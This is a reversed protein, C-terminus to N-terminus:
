AGLDAGITAAARLALAATTLVPNATSGTPFVSSGVIFLNRHDHSRGEPDVVSKHIDKGMITTGMIHGSGSDSQPDGQLTYDRAGLREFIMAHLRVAALLAGRVYDDITYEIKPRPIGFRDTVTDSPVVRNEWRPLQEVASNLVIQRSIHDALRTRLAEGFLHQTGVLDLVSGRSTLNTGRPAGTPWTWGDNRITTRFAAREARFAGDRLTEISSTSPPGRFPYLAKEALAYSMKIPHDMLYRGVAGSSNAVGAPRQGRSLLLLKPIEIANAALVVVRGSVVEESGDWRKYRVREVRTGDASLELQTVIAKERLEAGAKRAKEVHFNAEYKAMTPCFPICSSQGDCAPRGEHEESNRAQPISTMRVPMGEFTMGAIAAAVQRDLYSPTIQPMPPPTSREARYYRALEELEAANGAVGIEDEAKGYWSELEAYTLPWDFGQQYRTNLEFDSPLMRLAIGQWHWTTGGVLNEYFSTFLQAPKANPDEVYHDRGFIPQAYDAQNPQPATLGIYPSSQSKSASTMYNGAITRRDRVIDGADLLLVGIKQSALKFAVLAGSVGSGVIVVDKTPVNADAKTSPASRTM